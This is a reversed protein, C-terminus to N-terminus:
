VKVRVLGTCATGDTVRRVRGSGYGATATGFRGYGYMVTNDSYGYSRVTGYVTSGYLRVFGYGDYHCGSMVTGYM